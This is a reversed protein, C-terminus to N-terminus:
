ANYKIGIHKWILNQNIRGITSQHVNFRKAIVRQREGMFLLEKIKEIDMNKLKSLKKEEGKPLIGRKSALRLSYGQTIYELNDLKINTKCFDKHHLIMGIPRKGVWAEMVLKHGTISRKKGNNDIPTFTSYGRGDISPKLIKGASSGKSDVIRMITGDQFIGYSKFEPHIKYENTQTTQM